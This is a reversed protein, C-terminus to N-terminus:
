AHHTMTVAVACPGPEARKRKYIQRALCTLECTNESTDLCVHLRVDGTTAPPFNRIRFCQGPQQLTKRTLHRLTNLQASLKPSIDVHRRIAAIAQVFLTGAINGSAPQLGVSFAKARRKRMMSEFYEGATAPINETDWLQSAWITCRLKKKARRGATSSNPAISTDTGFPPFIMALAFGCRLM